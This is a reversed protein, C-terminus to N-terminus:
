HSPSDGQPRTRALQFALGGLSATMVLTGLFRVRNAVVVARDLMHMQGFLYNWDHEDSNFMPLLMVKADKMYVSINILNVAVWFLCLLAAYPDRGRWAFYVTFGVPFALQGLTGGLVVTFQGFFPMLFYHGAEHFPLNAWDLVGWPQPHTYYQWSMWAVVLALLVRGRWVM